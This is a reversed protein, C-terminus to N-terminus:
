LFPVVAPKFAQDNGFLRKLTTSFKIEFDPSYLEKRFYYNIGLTFTPLVFNENLMRVGGGISSYLSQKRLLEHDTLLNLNIRHYFAFRFGYTYWPMFYVNEITLVLRKSGYPALGNRDLWNGEVGLTKDLIRNLGKTYRITVFQRSRVRRIKFLNSFCLTNLSLIGDEVRGQKFFSGLTIGASVYGLRETYRAVSSNMEFYNRDFFENPEHGMLLTVSGGIPVDETRGFGRIFSSKLYNRKILTVSGLWLSRDYFFSNSDASVFPKEFFKRNLFRISTILNLRKQLEFSRGMWVDVRNEKYPLELTDSDEFYFKEATTFLEVGGAYKIEPTFFDRGISIRSQTREQNHTYQIEGQVFSRRINPSRLSVGYGNIPAMASNRFYSLQLQQAYGLINIDYVDVRFKHPSSYSGSVGISGVDQTVVAVDVIKRQEDVVKLLIRADRMTRFQRLVRENDALRYPDVADGSKFLLNASVVSARTDKHVKNVFKGFTTTAMQLTDTVSGELLDVTKFTITGITYGIFQKFATESKIVAGNVKAKGSKKKKLLFSVAKNTMKTKSARSRITDYFQDSRVSPNEKIKVERTEKKSLYLITDHLTIFSTDRLIVLKNKLIPFGKKKEQGYCSLGAISLLIFIVLIRMRSRTSDLIRGILNM